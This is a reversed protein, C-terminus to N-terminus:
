KQAYKQPLLQNIEHHMEWSFAQSVHCKIYNQATANGFGLVPVYVWYVKRLQMNM